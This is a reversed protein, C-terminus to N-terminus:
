AAEALAPPLDFGDWAAKALAFTDFGIVPTANALDKLIPQNPILSALWQQTLQGIMDIDDPRTADMDLNRLYNFADLAHMAAGPRGPQHMAGFGEPLAWSAGRLVPGIMPSLRVIRPANRPAGTVVHAQFSATDPPDDLISDAIENIDHLLSSSAPANFLQSSEGHDPKGEPLWVTGTGISLAVIEGAPVGNGLAETVGHFVPNNFGGIAGDWFRRTVGPLVEIEAPADFYNVPANTSAHVAAALAPDFNAGPAAIDSPKARFFIERRWDYDFAVIILQPARGTGAGIATAMQSMKLGAVANGPPADMVATLGVLKRAAVYRPGLGALKGAEYALLDRRVFIENRNNDSQFLACIEKPKLNKVLGALVISGGSNAIALDFRRLIEHGTMDTYIADLAMAQILAWCGGGDLSLIRYPM